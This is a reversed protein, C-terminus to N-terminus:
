SKFAQKHKDRANQREEILVCKIRALTAGLRLGLWGFDRPAILRNAYAQGFDKKLTDHLNMTMVLLGSRVVLFYLSFFLVLVVRHIESQGGQGFSAILYALGSIALWPAIIHRAYARLSFWKQEFTKFTDKLTNPATNNM